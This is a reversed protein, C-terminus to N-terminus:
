IVAGEKSDKIAKIAPDNINMVKRKFEDSVLHILETPLAKKKLMQAAINDSMKHPNIYEQKTVFTEIGTKPDKEISTGVVAYEFVNNVIAKNDKFEIFEGIAGIRRTMTEDDLELYVCLDFADMVMETLMETSYDVKEKCMTVIRSPAHQPSKSHLSTAVSHGTGAAKVMDFAEGGRTETVIIWDPNNRLASRLLRSISVVLDPDTESDRTKWNTINKNPYLKKMNTELTDEIVDIGKYDPIFGVLFKILETKGTGTEGIVVINLNSKMAAKLFALMDPTGLTKVFSEESIKLSDDFVRIALSTGYPSVAKEVANIRLNPLETDLEPKAFSFTKKTTNAIKKAIKDIDDASIRHHSKKPRAKSTQVWLDTGNFMIDTVTGNGEALIADLKDLGAIANVLEQSMEDLTFGKPIFNSQRSIYATIKSRLIEKKTPNGFASELDDPFNEILYETVEDILKRDLSKSKVTEAKTTNVEGNTRYLFLYQNIDIINVTDETDMYVIESIQLQPFESLKIKVM